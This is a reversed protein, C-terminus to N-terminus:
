ATVVTGLTRKGALAEAVRGPALGNVVHVPVGSAAVARARKLKGAMSGTIDPVRSESERIDARLDVRPLLTAGPERPDRDFIGDVDTAFVARAPRVARALELMLVDGSLIGFGRANDLVVDGSLVPVFGRALTEHVPEYAFNSLEGSTTRALDYTSLGVAPLGVDRLASLVLAQLERVDAHVQAAALRREIAAEADGRALDHKKALVHGFSGAGHVVVVRQGVSAVELALRALADLRPTRYTAKDTIVSGGLKM